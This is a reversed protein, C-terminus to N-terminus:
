LLAPDISLRLLPSFLSHTFWTSLLHVLYFVISVLQSYRSASFWLYSFCYYFILITSLIQKFFLRHVVESLFIKPQGLVKELRRRALAFSSVVLTRKYYIYTHFCLVYISKINFILFYYIQGVSTNAQTLWAIVSHCRWTVNGISSFDGGQIGETLPEKGRLSVIIMKNLRQMPRDMPSMYYQMFVM